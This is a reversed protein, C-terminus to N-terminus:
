LPSPNALPSWTWDTLNYIDISYFALHNAFKALGLTGNSFSNQHMWFNSEIQKVDLFEMKACRTKNIQDIPCIEGVIIDGSVLQGGYYV